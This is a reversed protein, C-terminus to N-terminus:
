FYLILTDILNTEESATFYLDIEPIGTSNYIIIKERHRMVHHQDQIGTGLHEGKMLVGIMKYQPGSYDDRM